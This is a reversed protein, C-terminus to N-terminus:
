FLILADKCISGIHIGMKDETKIIKQKGTEELTM